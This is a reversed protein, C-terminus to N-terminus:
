ARKSNVLRMYKAIREKLAQKIQKQQTLLSEDEIQDIFKPSETYTPELPKHM